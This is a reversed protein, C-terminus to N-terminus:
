KLAGVHKLYTIAGDLTNVVAYSHGLNLLMMEVGKQELTQRGKKAKLELWAVKSGHLCVCLDPAGPLLGEQKMRWGDYGTRRAANPIAFAFVGPKGLLRLYTLVAKQLDHEPALRRYDAVSIM